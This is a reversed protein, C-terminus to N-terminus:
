AADHPIELFVEIYYPLGGGMELCVAGKRAFIKLGGGNGDIQFLRVGRGKHLPPPDSSTCKKSSNQIKYNGEDM